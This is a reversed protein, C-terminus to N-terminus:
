GEVLVLGGASPDQEMEEQCLLLEKGRIRKYRSSQDPKGSGALGAGVVVGTEVVVLDDGSDQGSFFEALGLGPLHMLFPSLM